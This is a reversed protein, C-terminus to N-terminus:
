ALPNRGSINKFGYKGAQEKYFAEKLDLKSDIAPKELKEVLTIINKRKGPRALQRFYNEVLESLSTEKSAAYAKVSALINNDITLNLRTKM